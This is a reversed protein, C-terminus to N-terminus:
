LYGDNLYDINKPKSLEYLNKKTFSLLFDAKLLPVFREKNIDFVPHFM